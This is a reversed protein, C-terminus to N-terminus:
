LGRFKNAVEVRTRDYIQKTDYKTVGKKYLYEDIKWYSQMINEIHKNQFAKEIFEYDEESDKKFGSRIFLWLRFVSKSVEEKYVDAGKSKYYERQAIKDGASDWHFLLSQKLDIYLPTAETEFKDTM